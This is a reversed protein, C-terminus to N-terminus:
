TLSVIGMGERGVRLLVGDNYYVSCVESIIFGLKSHKLQRVQWMEQSIGPMSCTPYEIHAGGAASKTHTDEGSSNLKGVSCESKEGGTMTEAADGVQEDENDDDNPSLDDETFGQPLLGSYM